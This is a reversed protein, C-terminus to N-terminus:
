SSRGATEEQVQVVRNGLQAEPVERDVLDQHAMLGTAEAMEVLVAVRMLVEVAVVMAEEEGEELGVQLLAVTVEMGLVRVVVEM